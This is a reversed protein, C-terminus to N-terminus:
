ETFSLIDRPCINVCEPNGECLDCILPLNEEEDFSVANYPCGKVCEHCGTCKEIDIEIINEKRYLAKQPCSEICQPFDCFRCLNPKTSKFNEEEVKIRSLWPAFFGKHSFACVIQCLKCGSCNEPYTAKKIKIKKMVKM